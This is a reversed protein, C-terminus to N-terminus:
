DEGRWSWGLQSRRGQSVEIADRMVRESVDLEAPPQSEKRALEDREEAPIRQSRDVHEARDDAPQSWAQHSAPSKALESVAAPMQQAGAQRALEKRETSGPDGQRQSSEEQKRQEQVEKRRIYRQATSWVQSGASGLTRGMRPPRAQSGGRGTGALLHQRRLFLGWWLTGTLLWQVLWGLGQISLIIRMTSLLAGLLISWLVKATVASLLRGAWAQFAARGAEGLAPALAAAPALLLYLLSVIAAELLRMAIFALSLLMGLVGLAIVMVGALRPLTGSNGRFEAQSATSGRCRASDSGGGCLVFFLSDHEKVSNRLPGNAPLALFIEGNTRAAQLLQARHWLVEASVGAKSRQGRAEAEIRSAIKGAAKELRPDLRGPRDCWGVDGFELFCWPAEITAAYLQGMSAALAGYPHVSGGSLVADLSGVSAQESWQSLVGVTGSPDAIVFMAGAIMALMVLAEGLTQAVRRRVIGQYAALLAACALMAGLWPQTIERQAVGLAPTLGSALPSRLLDLSYAWELGVLVVHVLWVLGIWIPRVIYDQLLADIGLVTDINTDFSYDESPAAAAVFGSTQCDSEAAFSLEGGSLRCLPSGLGNRILPDESAAASEPESEGTGQQIDGGAGAEAYAAAGSVLPPGAPARGSSAHTRPERLVAAHASPLM